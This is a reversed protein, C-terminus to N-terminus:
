HMPPIVDDAVKDGLFHIVERALEANIAHLQEALQSDETENWEQIIALWSRGNIKQSVREHAAAILAEGFTQIEKPQM